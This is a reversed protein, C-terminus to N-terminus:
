LSLHAICLMFIEIIAIWLRKMQLTHESTIVGLPTILYVWFNEIGENGHRSEYTRKNSRLYKMCSLSLLIYRRCM